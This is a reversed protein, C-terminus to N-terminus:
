IADKRMGKFKLFKRDEGKKLCVCKVWTGEKDIFGEPYRPHVIKTLYRRIDYQNVTVDFHDYPQCLPCDLPMGTPSKIVEALKGSNIQDEWMPRIDDDGFKVMYCQGHNRTMQWWTEKQVKVRTTFIEPSEGPSIEWETSMLLENSM